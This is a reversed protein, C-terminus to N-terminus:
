YYKVSTSFLPYLGNSSAGVGSGSDSSESNSNSILSLGSGLRYMMLFSGGVSCHIRSCSREAMRLILDRSARRFCILGTAPVGELVTLLVRMFSIFNLSKISFARHQVKNHAPSFTFAREDLIAKTLYVSLTLFNNPTSFNM